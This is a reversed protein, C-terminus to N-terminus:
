RKRKPQISRNKKKSVCRVPGTLKGTRKGKVHHAEKGKPCKAKRADKNRKSRRKRQEAKGHYADYESGPAGKKYVRKKRM